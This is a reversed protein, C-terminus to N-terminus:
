YLKSHKYPRDKNIEMKRRIYYEIFINKKGCLDALRIFVDALERNFSEEDGNRDAECAEAVETVILMLKESIPREEDWFGKEKAIKHSEDILEQLEMINMLEM